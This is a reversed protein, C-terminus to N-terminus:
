RRGRGAAGSGRGRRPGGCRGPRPRRRGSRGRPPERRGPERRGGPPPRGPAPGGPRFDSRRAPGVSGCWGDGAPGILSGARAPSAQGASSADPGITAPASSGAPGTCPAASPRSPGTTVPRRRPPPWCTCRRAYSATWRSDLLVRPSISWAQALAATVREIREARPVKRVAARLRGEPWRCSPLLADDQFGQRDTCRGPM